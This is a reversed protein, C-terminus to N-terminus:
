ATGDDAILDVDAVDPLLPALDPLEELTTVGVADLFLDTTAYLAAGTTPDRDAIDVLGRSALTRVVADVNVGRIAAIRARSVPQRYAIVALTELAATSLRGSTERVVVARVRDTVAPAAFLRWGSSTERLAMGRGTAAYTTQLTRLARQVDAELVAWAAAVAAPDLPRDLAVLLGEVAAMLDAPEGRGDPVLADAGRGPGVATPPMTTM